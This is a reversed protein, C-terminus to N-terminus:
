QVKHIEDVLARLNEVPCDAATACGPGAIYRAGRMQELRERCEARVEDVKGYLLPGIPNIMGLVGCRDKTIDRAHEPTTLPDLELWDAGSEVMDELIPNEHGCIHVGTLLGISHCHEVFMKQYPLEYERFMAPSILSIGLGGICTGDAGAQKLATAYAMTCQTCFEIFAHVKEPYRGTAVETLFCETGYISIALAMPGQDARGMIFVEDGVEEKIFRVAKTMENLPFTTDPDPMRLKKVDDLESAICEKVHPPQDSSYAVKCGIAEAMAAVGSEIMLVDHGFVKWANIQAKALLEGKQPYIDLGVNLMQAATLYNHLAVPVCDPSEGRLISM